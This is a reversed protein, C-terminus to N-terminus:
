TCGKEHDDGRNRTIKRFSPDLAAQPLRSEQVQKAITVPSGLVRSQVPQTFTLLQDSSQPVINKQYMVFSSMLGLQLQRIKQNARLLDGLQSWAQQM